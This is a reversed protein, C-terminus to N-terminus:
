GSSGFKTLRVRCVESASQTEELYGIMAGNLIDAADASVILNAGGIAVLEGLVNAAATATVDWVGDLACTVETKGNAYDAATVEEWVVGAFPQDAASSAAVIHPDASLYVITGKTLAGTCTYRAFRTPTEICVAENAM